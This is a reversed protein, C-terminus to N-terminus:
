VYGPPIHKDATRSLISVRTTGVCARYIHKHIYMCFHIYIFIYINIYEAPIHGDTARSLTSLHQELLVSVLMICINM